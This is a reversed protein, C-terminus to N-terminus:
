KNGYTSNIIRLSSNSLIIHKTKLIQEINISNGTTIEVNKLNRSALWLFKNTSPLIFLIKETQNIGLEM